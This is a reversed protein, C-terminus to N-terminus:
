MNYKHISFSWLQKIDVEYRTGFSLYVAWARFISGEDESRLNILCSLILFM